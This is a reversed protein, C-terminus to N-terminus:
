QDVEPELQLTDYDLRYKKSGFKLYTPRTLANRIQAAIVEAEGDLGIVCVGFENGIEPLTVTTGLVTKFVTARLADEITM